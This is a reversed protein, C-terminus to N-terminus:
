PRTVRLRVRLRRLTEPEINDALFVVNARRWWPQLMFSLLVLQSGSFYGPLLKGVWEMGNRQRLRWVGQGDWSIQVIARSSLLLAQNRLSLYFSIIIGIGLCGALGWPIALWPLLLLGGGHLTALFVALTRSSRRKLRLPAAYKASLM